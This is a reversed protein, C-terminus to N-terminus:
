QEFGDGRVRALVALLVLVASAMLTFKRLAQRSYSHHQMKGIRSRDLGNSALTQNPQDAVGKLQLPGKLVTHASSISRCGSLLLYRVVM